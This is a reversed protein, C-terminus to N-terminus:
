RSGVIVFHRLASYHHQLIGSAFWPTTFWWLTVSTSRAARLLRRAACLDRHAALSNQCLVSFDGRGVAGTTVLLLFSAAGSQRVCCSTSSVRHVISSSVWLVSNPHASHASSCTRLIRAFRGASDFFSFSVPMLIDPLAPSGFCCVWCCPLFSSFFRCLLALLLCSLLLALLLCFFFLFVQSFGFATRSSCMFCVSSRCMWCWTLSSYICRSYM